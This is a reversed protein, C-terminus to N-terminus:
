EISREWPTNEILHLVMEDLQLLAKPAHHYNNISTVDGNNFGLDIQTLPIGEVPKTNIPYQSASNKLQNEEIFLMFEVVKERGIFSSYYGSGLPYCEAKCQYFAYGQNNVSLEFQDCKAICPHKIIKLVNYKDLVIPKVIETDKILDTEINDTPINEELKNENPPM